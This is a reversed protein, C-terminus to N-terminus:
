FNPIAEAMKLLFQYLNSKISLTLSTSLYFRPLSSLNLVNTVAQERWTLPFSLFFSAATIDLEWLSGPIAPYLYHSYSSKPHSPPLGSFFPPVGQLNLCINHVLVSFPMEQFLWDVLLWPSDTDFHLFNVKEKIIWVM